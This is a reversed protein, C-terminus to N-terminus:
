KVRRIKQQLTVWPVGGGKVSYRLWPPFDEIRGNQALATSFGLGLGRLSSPLVPGIGGGKGAREMHTYKICQVGKGLPASGGM